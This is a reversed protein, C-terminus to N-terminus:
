RVVRIAVVSSHRYPGRPRPGRGQTRCQSHYTLQISTSELDGAHSRLQKLMGEVKTLITCADLHAAHDPPSGLTCLPWMTPSTREDPTSIHGAAARRLSHPEVIDAVVVVNNDSLEPHGTWVQKIDAVSGEDGDVWWSAGTVCERPIGIVVLAWDFDAELRLRGVARWLELAGEVAELVSDPVLANTTEVAYARGRLCHQSFPREAGM